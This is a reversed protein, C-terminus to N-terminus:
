LGYHIGTGISACNPLISGHRSHQPATRVPEIEIAVFRVLGSMDMDVSVIHRGLKPKFWHYECRVRPKAGNLKTPYLGDYLGILGAENLRPIPMKANFASSRTELTLKVASESLTPKISPLTM